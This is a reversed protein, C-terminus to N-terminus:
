NRGGTVSPFRRWRPASHLPWHGTEARAAALGEILGAAASTNGTRVLTALNLEATDPDIRLARHYAHRFAAPDDASQSRTNAIAMTTAAHTPTTM